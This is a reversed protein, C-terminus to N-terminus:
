TRDDRTVAVTVPGGHRAVDERATALCHSVLVAMSIEPMADVIRVVSDPAGARGLKRRLADADVPRM